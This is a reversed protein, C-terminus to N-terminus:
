AWDLLVKGCEGREVIAFAEDFSAAPVRHTIVGHVDLGSQLM